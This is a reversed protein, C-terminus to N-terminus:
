DRPSPSTYLLCTVAQPYGRVNSWAGESWFQTIPLNATWQVPNTDPQKNLNPLTCSYNTGSYSVIDGVQYTTSSNWAAQLKTPYYLDLGIVNGYATNIDTVSTIQVLGYIFQNDATLVIRPPTSSAVSTTNGEVTFTYIGGTLEKGSISYNADAKSTLTTVRQFTVGNDYSVSIVVNGYWAGYTQVEWTGVLYLTSDGVWTGSSFTYSGSSGGADFEINSVPRNYAMQWYSGVHGSQFTEQIRWYGAALDADFSVSSTNAVICVYIYDISSGTPQAYVSNGPVYVTHATWFDNARVLLEVPGSVSSTSSASITLDTANEDLMAPTLFQVEQMVWNNNAYRTLKWVPFNPHVIYVVDNIQKFQLQFIDCNWYNPATFPTVTGTLSTTGTASYPSPVEYATQQIFRTTDISPDNPAYGSVTNYYTLSNISSKLFQGAPYASM